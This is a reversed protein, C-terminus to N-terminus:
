FDNQTPNQQQQKQLTKKFLLDTFPLMEGLTLNQIGQM